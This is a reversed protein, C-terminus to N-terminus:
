DGTLCNFPGVAPVEEKGWDGALNGGGGAGSASGSGSVRNCDCGGVFAGLGTFYEGFLTVRPGDKEGGRLEGLFSTADGLVMLDVEGGGEGSRRGGEWIVASGSGSGVLRCSMDVGAGGGDGCCLALTSCSCSLIMSLVLTTCLLACSSGRWWLVMLGWLLLQALESSSDPRRMILMAPSFLPAKMSSSCDEDVGPEGMFLLAKCPSSAAFAFFSPLPPAPFNDANDANTFLLTCPTFLEMRRLAEEECLLGPTWRATM